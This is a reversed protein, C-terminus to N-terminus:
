IQAPSAAAELVADLEEQLREAVSKEPVDPRTYGTNNLATAFNAAQAALLTDQAASLAADVLSPTVTSVELM